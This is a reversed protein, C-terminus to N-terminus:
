QIKRELAKNLNYGMMEDFEKKKKKFKEDEEPKEKKEPPKAQKSATGLRYSLFATVIVFFMTMICFVTIPM